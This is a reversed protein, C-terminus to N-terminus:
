ERKSKTFTFLANWAEDDVLESTLNINLLDNFWGICTNLLLYYLNQQENILSNFGTGTMKFPLCRMFYCKLNQKDKVLNGYM